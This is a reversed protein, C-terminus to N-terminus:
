TVAELTHARHAIGLGAWGRRRDFTVRFTRDDITEGDKTIGAITDQETVDADYAVLLRLENVVVNVDNNSIEARAAPTFLHCAIEHEEPAGPITHGDPDASGGSGARRVTARMLLPISPSM